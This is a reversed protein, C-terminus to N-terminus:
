YGLNANSSPENTVYIIYFIIKSRAQSAGLCISDNVCMHVRKWQRVEYMKSEIKKKKKKTEVM